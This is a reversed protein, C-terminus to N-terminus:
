PTILTTACFIMWGFSKASGTSQRRIPWINPRVTARRLSRAGLSRFETDLADVLHAYTDDVSESLGFGGAMELSVIGHFAARLIRVAHILGAGELQYGKLASAIM